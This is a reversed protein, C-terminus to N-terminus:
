RTRQQKLTRKSRVISSVYEASSQLDNKEFKNGVQRFFKIPDLDINAEKIKIEIYKKLMLSKIEPDDSNEEPIPSRTGRACTNNIKYNYNNYIYSNYFSVLYYKLIEIENEQTEYYFDNFFSNLSSNVQNLYRKTARNKLDFVFRWPANYDIRFSFKLAARAIFIFNPDNFYDALKKQDNDYGEQSIEFILGSTFFNNYESKLFGTKTLPFSNGNMNSYLFFQDIFTEFDKINQDLYINQSWLRSFRKFVEKMYNHYKNNFDEWGRKARFNYYNSDSRIKNKRKAKEIYALLDKYAIAAANVLYIEDDNDINKLFGRSPYVESGRFNLNGYFKRQGKQMDIMFPAVDLDYILDFLKDYKQRQRFVDEASNNNNNNKFTM